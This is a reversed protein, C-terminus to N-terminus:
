GKRELVDENLRWTKEVYSDKDRLPNGEEDMPIYEIMMKTTEDMGASFEIRKVFSYMYGDLQIFINKVNITGDNSKTMRIVIEKADEFM